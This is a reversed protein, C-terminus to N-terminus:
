EKEEESEKQESAGRRCKEREECELCEPYLVPLDTIPCIKMSSREQFVWEAFAASHTKTKSVIGSM